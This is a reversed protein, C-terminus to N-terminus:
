YRVVCELFGPPDIDSAIGIDMINDVEQVVHLGYWAREVGRSPPVATPVSGAPGLQRRLHTEFSGRLHLLKRRSMKAFEWLGHILPLSGCSPSASPVLPHTCHPHPALYRVLVLEMLDGCMQTQDTCIVGPGISQVFQGLGRLEVFTQVQGAITIDASRGGRRFRKNEVGSLRVFDRRRGSKNYPYESDTAWVTLYSGSKQLSKMRLRQYFKVSLLHMHDRIARARTTRLSKPLDKDLLMQTVMNQMEGRTVPATVALFDDLHGHMKFVGSQLVHMLHVDPTKRVQRPIHARSRKVMKIARMIDSDHNLKDVARGEADTSGFLHSVKTMVGGVVFRHMSEPAQADTAAISGVHQLFEPQHMAAHPLIKSGYELNMMVSAEPRLASTRKRKRTTRPSAYGEDDSSRPSTSGEDDNDLIEAAVEICRMATVYQTRWLCALERASYSRRGSVSILLACIVHYAASLEGRVSLPFVDFYVGTGFPMAYFVSVREEATLKNGEITSKINRSTVGGGRSNCYRCSHLTLLHQTCSPLTLLHQTCSPLTIFDESSLFYYIFGMSVSTVILTM